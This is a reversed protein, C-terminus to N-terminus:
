NRRGRLDYVAPRDGLFVYISDSGNKPFAVKYATYGVNYVFYFD